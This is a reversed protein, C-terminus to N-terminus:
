FDVYNFIKQFLVGQRNFVKCTILIIDLSIIIGLPLESQQMLIHKEHM